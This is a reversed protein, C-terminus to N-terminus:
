QTACFMCLDFSRIARLVDIGQQGPDSSVLPTAMVAAECPGPRGAGDRPSGSFTSPGVIQYNEIVRDGLQLHHSVYGRAGGWYGAGFTAGRPIKYPNFIKSHEKGRRALDLGIVVSEYAVVTAQALAYARARNRELANWRQPVQWEVDAAPMAAPPVTMVVSRGTSHTLGGHPGKGALATAWLRAQAGTEMPHGNWRAATCWSYAGGGSEPDAPRPITQKNSPHRQSLQNGAADTSYPGAGWDEYFSHDVFEEVGADILRVDTTQLVGDVIAGPTSWRDNGPVATNAIAGVGYSAPDDWLGLDLFNKPGAGVAAYRQDAAYFFNVLDNWLAVTRRTYDLFKVVRLLALNFDTTDVTSSVGGPTATQPHPYKGGITVYAERAVRSMHLAERYQSGSNRRLETMIDAIRSLGHVDAGAATAGEARAWLEPSTQRVIPESYDLGARLFLHSPHDIMCELAAMLNRAVVAMQPPEIGCAMELAQAAATSHANGCVGCARSSVFVADRADRGVLINEYGRFATARAAANSVTRDGFNAAAHLAFPGSVRTVPDFRLNRQAHSSEAQQPPTEPAAYTPIAM